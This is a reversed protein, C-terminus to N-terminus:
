IEVIKIPVKKNEKIYGKPNRIFRTSDIIMDVSQHSHGHIWLKPKNNYITESEDSVFFCNYDNNEYEPSVLEGLPLHHTIVIDNNTINNNIYSSTKKNREYFKESTEYIRRYDSFFFKLKESKESKPFWLTGGLFRNNKITVENNELWFCNSPLDAFDKMRDLSEFDFGYVEHNGSVYIVNEWMDSFIKLYKVIESLHFCDGALILLEANESNIKLDNIVQNNYSEYYLEFHIDSIIQIKMRKEVM